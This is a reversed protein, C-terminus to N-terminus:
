SHSPLASFAKLIAELFIELVEVTAPLLTYNCLPLTKFAIYSM